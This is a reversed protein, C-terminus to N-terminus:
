SYGLKRLARVVQMYSKQALKEDSTFQKCATMVHEHSFYKCRSLKQIVRVAIEKASM